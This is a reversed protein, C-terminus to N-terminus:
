FSSIRIFITPVKLSNLKKLFSIQKGPSKIKVHSCDIAGIVKPFSAIKYFGAQTELIEKKKEPFVIHTKYLSAIAASVRHIIRHATSKSFGSFDAASLQDSGTAYFRLACLLQNM